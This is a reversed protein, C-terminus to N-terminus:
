HTDAGITSGCDSCVEICTKGSERCEDCDLFRTNVCQCEEGPEDEKQDELDDDDLTVLDDSYEASDNINLLKGDFYTDDEFGTVIWRYEGDFEVAEIHAGTTFVTGGIERWHQENSNIITNAM